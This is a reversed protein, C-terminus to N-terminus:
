SWTQGQKSGSSARTNLCSTLSHIQCERKKSERPRTEGCRYAVVTETYDPAFYFQQEREPTRTLNAGILEGQERNLLMGLDAFESAVRVEFAIGLYDAFAAALAV